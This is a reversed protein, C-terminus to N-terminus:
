HVHDAHMMTYFRVRLHSVHLARHMGVTGEIVTSDGASGAGIKIVHLAM